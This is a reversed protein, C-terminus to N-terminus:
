WPRLRGFGFGSRESDVTYNFLQSEAGVTIRIGMSGPGMVNSDLLVYFKAVPPPVVSVIRWADLKVGNLLVEPMLYQDDDDVILEIVQFAITSIENIKYSAGPMPQVLVIQPKVQKVVRAARPEGVNGLKDTAFM